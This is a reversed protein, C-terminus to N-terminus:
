STETLKTRTWWDALEDIKQGVYETAYESVMYGLVFAGVETGAKKIATDPDVNNKILNGVVFSTSLGIVTQVAKKALEIRDM